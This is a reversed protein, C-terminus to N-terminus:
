GRATKVADKMKDVAKEAVEKVKGSAQDAKGADRLKDNGTVAGAAEKVRGKVEDAKGGMVTEGLQYHEAARRFAALAFAGASFVRRPRMFCLSLLGPLNFLLRRAVLPSQLKDVFDGYLGVSQAYHLRGKSWDPAARDLRM